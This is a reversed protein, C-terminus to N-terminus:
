RNYRGRNYGTDSNGAQKEITLDPRIDVGGLLSLLNKLGVISAIIFLMFKLFDKRSM